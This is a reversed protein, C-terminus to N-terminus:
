KKKKKKMKPKKKPEKDAIIDGWYAIQLAQSILGATILVPPMAEKMLTKKTFKGGLGAVLLDLIKDVRSMDEQVLSLPENYLTEIEAIAAYSFVLPYSKGSIEIM